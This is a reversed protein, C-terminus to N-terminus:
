ESIREHQDIVNQLEIDSYAILITDNAYRITPTHVGNVMVRSIM